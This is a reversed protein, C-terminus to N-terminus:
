RMQGPPGIVYKYGGERVAIVIRERLQKPTVRLGDPGGGAANKSRGTVVVIDDGFHEKHEPECRV